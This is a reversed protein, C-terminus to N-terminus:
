GDGDDIAYTEDEIRVTVEGEPVDRRRIYGEDDTEGSLESGDALVLVYPVGALPTEEEADGDLLRVCFPRTRLVLRNDLDEDSRVREVSAPRECM